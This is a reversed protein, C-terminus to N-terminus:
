ALLRAIGALPIPLWDPRNRAEYLAEYLAKDLELAALLRRHQVLDVGSAAAWASLFEERLGSAWSTLDAGTRLRAANAAYDFSRLMGAVDRLALDPQRRQALPRLPEGEFDLLVWGRGPAEIVQGLHYDGHIRQLAPWPEDVAADLVSGIRDELEGVAPVAAAANAARALWVGRLRQRDAATVPTTGLQQALIRHVAATARGLGAADFPAGTAARDLAVQWADRAGAIFEQVVALDGEERRSARSWSGRLAGVHRPVHRTGAASLAAQLEVDPNPGDELKRFVKIVVTGRAGDPFRVAAVISTNSQEGAHVRCGEVLTGPLVADMLWRAHAPAHCADVVCTAGHTFVVASPPAGPVPPGLLLPIRYLADRDDALVEVLHGDPTQALVRQAFTFTPHSDKAAYWRQARIWPGLAAAAGSPLAVGPATM